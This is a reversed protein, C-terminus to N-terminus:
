RQQHGTEAALPGLQHRPDGRHGLHLPYGGGAGPSAHGEGQPPGTGAVVALAHGQRTPHHQLEATQIPQAIEVGVAAHDLHLGPGHHRRHILLQGGLAPRSSGLV